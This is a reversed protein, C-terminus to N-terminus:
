GLAEARWSVRALKDQYLLVLGQERGKGAVRFGAPRMQILSGDTM